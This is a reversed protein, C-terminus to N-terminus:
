QSAWAGVDGKNAYRQEAQPSGVARCDVDSSEGGDRDAALRINPKLELKGQRQIQGTTHMQAPITSTSPPMAARRREDFAVRAGATDDSM